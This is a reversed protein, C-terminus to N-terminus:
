RSGSPPPPPAMTTDVMDWESNIAAMRKKSEQHLTYMRDAYQNLQKLSNTNKDVFNVEFDFVIAKDKYEGGYGVIDQWTALSLDYGQRAATDMKALNKSGTATLIKNLDIYMAMPHGSIKDVFPQKTTGTGALFSNKHADSNSAAFWGNQIQYSMPSKGPMMNKSVGELITVLKQFSAEDNVSTAFLINMGPAWNTNNPTGGSEPVVDVKPEMNVDSIALLVEGKNAKVFEEISYNMDALFGNAMGDVGLVKLFEQLGQPPYNFAIVGAVNSSPIRNLVASSVNEPKHKEILKTMEPNYYSKSKGTIKGNDFNVSVASVNGEFLLSLKMMSAMGTMGGYGSSNLWFHIDSGDKVLDAFRTDSDLNDEGKLDLATRGYMRLSDASFRSIVPKGAGMSQMDPIEANNIFAFKSKDWLIVGDKESAMYSFDGDQKVEKPEEKHVQLLLKEFASADTLSGQFVMYSGKGQKKLYFVLDAKTDIGSSAPDALLQQATSDTSEKSLQKFWNTQRIEEWTLKSSLSSSNIHVVMAADKPVLLGSKGGKNGCAAFLIALASLILLSNRRMQNNKRNITIFISEFPIPLGCQRKHGEQWIVVFTILLGM